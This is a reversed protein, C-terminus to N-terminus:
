PTYRIPSTYARQQTTMPAKEPLEAGYRCVDYAVWRPTPIEMVRVYYFATQAAEFDPDAWVKILQNAVISNEYTCEAVNTTNGVAPVRGRADPTRDGSWAM